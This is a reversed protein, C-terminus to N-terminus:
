FTACANLTLFLFRLAAQLPIAQEYHSALINRPSVKWTELQGEPSRIWEEYQPGCEKVWNGDAGVVKEM